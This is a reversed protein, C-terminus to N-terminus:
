SDQIKVAHLAYNVSSDFCWHWTNTFFNYTMGHVVKTRLHCDELMRQLRHPEICNEIQHTGKPVLKIINEAVYIALLNALITKNITTIFMSGNPKLCKSCAALFEEKKTVHEVIESAAVADFGEFHNNSFDEISTFSYNISLNNEKAHRQAVKIMNPAADVGTVSAGLRALAESLIGGGCGVDLISIGKLPTATDINEKDAAGEAILGDRIFPVRLRNMAHLGRAGGLETWWESTLREYKEVEESDITTSSAFSRSNLISWTICRKLCLTMKDNM